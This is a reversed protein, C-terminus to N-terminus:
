CAQASVSFFAADAIRMAYAEYPADQQFTSPYFYQHCKHAQRTLMVAYAHRILQNIRIYIGINNICKILDHRSMAM